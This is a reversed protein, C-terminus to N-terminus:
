LTFRIGITLTSRVPRGCRTAAEFRAARAVALAAEDCGHGLAQLVRASAVRGQEDITVEVRVRGEISAERAADPYEPQAIEVPRARTIEETCGQERAPELQRTSARQTTRSVDSGAGGGGANVALGAGASANSM